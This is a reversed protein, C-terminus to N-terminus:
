TITNGRLVGNNLTVESGLPYGENYAPNTVFTNNVNVDLLSLIKTDNNIIFVINIIIIMILLINKIKKMNNREACYKIWKELALCLRIM